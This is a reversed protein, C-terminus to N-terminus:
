GQKGNGQEKFAFMTEFGQGDTSKEPMFDLYINQNGNKQTVIRGISPWRTAKVVNGDKDTSEYPRCVKLVISSM